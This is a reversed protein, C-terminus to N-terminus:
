ISGAARPLMHCYVINIGAFVIYTEKDLIRAVAFAMHDKHCEPTPLSASLSGGDQGGGGQDHIEIKEKVCRREQNEHPQKSPAEPQRSLLRERWTWRRIRDYTM